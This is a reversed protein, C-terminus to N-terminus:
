AIHQKIQTLSQKQVEHFSKLYVIKELFMKTFVKPQELAGNLNVHDAMGGSHGWVFAAPLGSWKTDTFHLM